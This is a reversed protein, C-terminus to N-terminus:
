ARPEERWWHWWLELRGATFGCREYLRVAGRNRGQTVVRVPAAGRASLWRLAEGVLDTGIGRGRAGEALGVLGLEASGDERVHCSVYGSPAGDIEPVLVVDAGGELARTIWRVYLERVRAPPFRPDVAFRTDGYAASAIRQLAPLDSPRAPRIAAASERAPAASGHELTLRVDVFRFGQDAAHRASSLDAADVLLYLCDVGAERAARTVARAAEQDLPADVRGIRLGFFGSDWDLMRWRVRSLADASM